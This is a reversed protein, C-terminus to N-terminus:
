RLRGRSPLTRAPVARGRPHPRRAADEEMAVRGVIGPAAIVARDEHLPGPGPAALLRDHVPAVVGPAPLIRRVVQVVHDGGADAGLEPEGHELGADHHLAARDVDVAATGQQGGLRAQEVGIAVGLEVPGVDLGMQAIKEAHGLDEPETVADRAVIGIPVHVVEGAEDVLARDHGDDFVIRGVFVVLRELRVQLPEVAHGVLVAAREPDDAEGHRPWERM